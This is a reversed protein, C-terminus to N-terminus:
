DKGVELFITSTKDTRDFPLCAYRGCGYDTSYTYYCGRCAYGEIVKLKTGNRNVFVEGIGTEIKRNM